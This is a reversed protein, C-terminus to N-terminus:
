LPAGRRRRRTGAPSSGPSRRGRRRCGSGRGGGARRAVRGGVLALAEVQDAPRLARWRSGAAVVGLQGGADLGVLEGVPHLARGGLGDVQRALRGLGPAEVAEVVRQRGLEAGAAQQGPPQDLAADPEDLEVRAVHGAPVGVVVDLRVVRRHAALGVLRDGAQQGVQLTAPEEVVGQDDPAALEAPHRHGLPALAAVVVRVAEGDPDGAAPMLPPVTWPAVSATPRRASTSRTWTWSRWAM